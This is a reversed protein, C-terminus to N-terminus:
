PTFRSATAATQGQYRNQRDPNTAYPHEAPGTMRMFSVQAIKQGPWMRIPVPLLNSFELTITGEFGPDLFGGTAHIILGLRALSSKGELRAVVDAPLRLEEVTRGLAFQGPQLTFSEDAKIRKHESFHEHSAPDALDVMPTRHPLFVRFTDGLRVDYSAPQVSGPDFPVITSSAAEIEWDPFVTM